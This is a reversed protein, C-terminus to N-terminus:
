SGAAVSLLTCSQGQERGKEGARLTPRRCAPMSQAQGTNGCVRVHGKWSVRIVKVHGECLGRWASGM